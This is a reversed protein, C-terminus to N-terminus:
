GVCMRRRAPQVDLQVTCSPCPICKYAALFWEPQLGVVLSSRSRFAAGAQELLTIASSNPDPEPCTFTTKLYEHELAQYELKASVFMSVANWTQLLVIREVPTSLHIPVLFHPAMEMQSFTMGKMLVFNECNGDRQLFWRSISQPVIVAMLPGNSLAADELMKACLGMRDLFTANARHWEDTPAVVKGLRTLTTAQMRKGWQQGDKWADPHAFAYEVEAQSFTPFCVTTQSLEGLTQPGYFVLSTAAFVAALNAIYSNVLIQVCM